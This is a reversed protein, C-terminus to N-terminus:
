RTFKFTLSILCEDPMASLESGDARLIRFDIGSSFPHDPMLIWAGNGRFVSNLYYGQPFRECQFPSMAVISGMSENRGDFVNRTGDISLAISNSNLLVPNADDVYHICSFNNVLLECRRAGFSVGPMNIRIRPGRGDSRKVCLNVHFFNIADNEM